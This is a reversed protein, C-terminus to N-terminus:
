KKDLHNNLKIENLEFKMIEHERKMEEIEEKTIYIPEESLEDNNNKFLTQLKQFTWFTAKTFYYVSYYSLLLIM